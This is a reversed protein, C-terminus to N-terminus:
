NRGRHVKKVAWSISESDLHIVITSSNEQEALWEIFDQQGLKNRSETALEYEERALLEIVWYGGITEVSNDPVPDSIMDLSIDFAVADFTDNGMDGVKLWGLEGGSESSEHQSYEAALTNFEETDLRGKIEEAQEHSGLLMTRIKRGKIEDIEVVEILWYGKDKKVAEDSVKAIEDPKLTFVHGAVLPNSILEEPLWLKDKNEDNEISFEAMLVSFDEGSGIRSIVTSAAMEDEVLMVSIHIQEVEHPLQANFYELVKNNLLESKVIEKYIDESAYETDALATEIEENSVVVALAVAGQKILENRVIQNTVSSAMYGVSEAELNKTYADLMEIYYAMDFTNNNVEIAPQHLPKIESNYLGFSVIGAIAALFIASAILAIRSIKRRHQWKSLNHKSPNVTSKVLNKKKSL